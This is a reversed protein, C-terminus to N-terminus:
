TFSDGLTMIRYTGAPKARTSNPSRLGDANTQVHYTIGPDGITDTDLNGLPQMIWQSSRFIPPADRRVRSYVPAPYFVRLLVELMALTIGLSLMVKILKGLCGNM